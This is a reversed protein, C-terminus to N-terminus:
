NLDSANMGDKNEKMSLETKKLISENYREELNEIHYSPTTDNFIETVKYLKSSWIITDSKSFTQKLDATEVLDNGKFNRKM